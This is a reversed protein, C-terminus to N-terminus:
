RSRRVRVSRPPRKESPRGLPDLYVRDADDLFLKYDRGEVGKYLTWAAYAGIMADLVSSPALNSPVGPIGLIDRLMAQQARCGQPTRNRFPSLIGYRMRAQYTFYNFVFYGEAKLKDYFARARPAFRDLPPTGDQRDLRLPHMKVEQQRWKGPISLSKPVDLGIVLGSKPGLSKILAYVQEDSDLKDMRALHKTRELVAVGTELTDIPAMDIGVFLWQDGVNPLQKISIEQKLYLSPTSM